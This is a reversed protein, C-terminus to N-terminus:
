DWSWVSRNNKVDWFQLKRNSGVNGFLLLYEEAGNKSVFRLGPRNHADTAATVNWRSNRENEVYDALARKMEGMTYLEDAVAVPEQVDIGNVEVEYLPCFVESEGRLIGEHGFSMPSSSYGSRGRVVKLVAKEIGSSSRSYQIGVYDTRRQGQVGNEIRLTNSGTIHVQRGQCVVDGSLVVVTNSGSRRCACKDGTPLIYTGTGILGANFAGLQESTIHNSGAHGTVLEVSM